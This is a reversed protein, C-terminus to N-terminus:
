KKEYLELQLQKESKKGDKKYVKLAIIQQNIRM